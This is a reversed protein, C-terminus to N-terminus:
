MGSSNSSVPVDGSSPQLLAESVPLVTVPVTVPVATDAQQGGIRSMTPVVIAKPKPPAVVKKSRGTDISIDTPTVAQDAKGENVGIGAIGPSIGDNCANPSRIDAISDLIETTVEDEEPIDISDLEKALVADM